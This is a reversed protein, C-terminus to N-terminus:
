LPLGFWLYLCVCIWALTLCFFAFWVVIVVSNVRLCCLCCGVFGLVLSLCLCVFGSVCVLVVGICLGFLLAFWVFLSFCGVM